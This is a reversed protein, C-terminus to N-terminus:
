REKVIFKRVSDIFLMAYVSSFGVLVFLVNLWEPFIIAIYMIVIPCVMRVIVNLGVLLSMTRNQKLAVHGIIKADVFNLLLNVLGAVLGAFISLFLIHFSTIMFGTMCIAACVGLITAYRKMNTELEGTM